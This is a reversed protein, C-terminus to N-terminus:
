QKKILVVNGNEDINQYLGHPNTMEIYSSNEQLNELYKKDKSLFSFVTRFLNVSTKLDTDYETHNPSNWLIAMGAGFVSKVLLPNDTKEESQLTYKYGVFGGHDAAIVILAKPDNKRIYNIVRSLWANALKLNLLYDAKVDDATADSEQGPIHGPLLQELFYFNGEPKQAAMSTKLDALVDYNVEWGDKLYPITSYDVNTYDYGLKPRNMVLYPKQSIFHTTYGNHKFVNLVANSGIIHERATYAEIDKQIYHHKMNFMSTNSLLTSYYNSRYDEYLTFGSLKLFNEFVSNDFNHNRDKLNNFGAYGDPQIYYVNPREKFDANAIDDPQKKWDNSATAAIYATNVIPPINFLAMFLVMVVLLKYYNKFKFSVAVTVVIITAFYYRKLTGTASLQLLYFAMLLVVGVFLFQKQRKQMNILALAKYGGYLVAIPILTYYAAFFLFQNRSNALSFNKSYYYLVMYIGISFGALLPVDQPSNIFHLIRQRLKEIM